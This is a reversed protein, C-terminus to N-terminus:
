PTESFTTFAINEAWFRYKEPFIASKEFFNAKKEIKRKVISL